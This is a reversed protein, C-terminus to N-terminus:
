YCSEQTRNGCTLLSHRSSAMGFRSQYAVEAQDLKCYTMHLLCGLQQWAETADDGDKINLIDAYADDKCGLVRELENEAENPDESTTDTPGDKNMLGSEERLRRQEDAQVRGDEVAPTPSPSPLGRSRTNKPTPKKQGTAQSKKPAKSSPPMINISSLQSQPTTLHSM